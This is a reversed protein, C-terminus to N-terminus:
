RNLSIRPAISAEHSKVVAKLLDPVPLSRLWDNNAEVDFWGDYDSLAEFFVNLDICGEGPLARNTLPDVRSAMVPSWDNTQVLFIRNGARKLQVALEPDWWHHYLDIVVGLNENGVEDLLDLAQALTLWVGRYPGWIPPLPELAVKLSRALAHPLLETLGEQARARGSVLDKDAPALGGASVGVMPSGLAAAEDLNRLNDSLTRPRGQRDHGSAWYGLASYTTVGIGTDRIL